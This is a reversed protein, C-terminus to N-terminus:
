TLLIRSGRARSLAGLRMVNLDEELVPMRERRWKDRKSSARFRTFAGHSSHRINLSNADDELV